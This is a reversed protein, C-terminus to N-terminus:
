GHCTTLKVAPMHYAKGSAEIKHSRSCYAARDLRQKSIMKLLVTVPPTLIKHWLFDLPTTAYAECISVM